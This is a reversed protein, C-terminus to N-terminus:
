AAAVPRTSDELFRDLASRRFRLSRTGARIAEIQGQRNWRYLTGRHVKLYDAAEKVTLLSDKSEASM